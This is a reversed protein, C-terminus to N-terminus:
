FANRAQRWAERQDIRHALEDRAGLEVSARGFLSAINADVEKLREDLSGIDSERSEITGKADNAKSLRAQFTEVAIRLGELDAPRASVKLPPADPDRWVDLFDRIREANKSIRADLAQLSAQKKAHDVRAEDWKSTVAIFRYFPAGSLTPDIGIELALANKESNLRDVEREVNKLEARLRERDGAREMQLRLRDLRGRLIAGCISGCPAPKGSRRRNWARRPSGAGRKM